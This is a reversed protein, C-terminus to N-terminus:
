VTYAVGHLRIRSKISSSDTIVTSGNLWGSPGLSKAWKSSKPKESAKQLEQKYISSPQYYGYLCLSLCASCLQFFFISVLINGISRLQTYFVRKIHLNCNSCNSINQHILCCNFQQKIRDWSERHISSSSSQSSLLDNHIYEALADFKFYICSGIVVEAGCLLLLTIGYTLTAYKSKKVSAINGVFGVCSAFISLIVIIISGSDKQPYRLLLSSLGTGLVLMPLSTIIVLIRFFQYICFSKIWGMWSSIFYFEMERHKESKMIKELKWKQNQENRSQISLFSGVHSYREWVTGM